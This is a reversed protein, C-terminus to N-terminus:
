CATAVVAFLRPHLKNLPVTHVTFGLSELESRAEDVFFQLYYMVFRPKWLANRLRMIGDFSAAMAYSLSLRPPPSATVFVFRGGDALVRRAESILRRMDDREFHGFAGFSTVVDFRAEWDSPLHLADAKRWRLEPNREEAVRLM